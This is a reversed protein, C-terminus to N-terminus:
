LSEISKKQLRLKSCEFLFVPLLFVGGLYLYYLYRWRPWVVIFMFITQYLFIGSYFASVPFWRSFMFVVVLGCLGFLSNWFIFRGAFIGKFDMTNLLKKELYLLAISLPKVKMEARAEDVSFWRQPPTHMDNNWIWADPSTGLTKVFIKLREALYDELFYKDSSGTIVSKLGKTKKEAAEIAFDNRKNNKQLVVHPFVFYYSVLLLTSVVFFQFYQKRSDSFFIWLILPIFPLYVLGNHRLTCLLFFLGALLLANKTSLRMRKKEYMRLYFVYTLFFAWFLILISFPIDKWLVINFFNIPLSCISLLFCPLLINLTVGNKFLIYFFSGVLLHFFVMQVIIVTIPADYFNLLALTLFSYVYPHHNTFRLWRVEKLITISDPTLSGPWEAFLFLSNVFLGGLFVSWFFWRKECTFILSFVGAKPFRKREEYYVSAVLSVLLASFLATLLQVVFLLARFQNQQLNNLQDVIEIETRGRIQISEINGQWDSVEIKDIISPYAIVQSKGVFANRGNPYLIEKVNANKDDLKIEVAKSETGKSFYIEYSIIENELELYDDTYNFILGRGSREGSFKVTKSDLSVLVGNVIIQEISIAKSQESNSLQSPSIRLKKSSIVDRVRSEQVKVAIGKIKQRPLFISRGNKNRFPDSVFQIAGSKEEKYVDPTVLLQKNKGYGDIYRIAAGNRPYVKAFGAQPAKFYYFHFNNSESFFDIRSGPFLALQRGKMKDNIKLWKGWNHKGQISFKKAAYINQPVVLWFVYGRSIDSKFGAPEISVGGLPPPSFDTTSGASFTVDTSDSENFGHGFDWYVKGPTEREVSGSIRLELGPYYKYSCFFYIFLGLFTFVGASIVKKRQSM